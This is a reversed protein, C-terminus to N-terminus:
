KPTRRRPRSRGVIKRAPEDAIVLKGTLWPKMVLDWPTVVGSEVMLCGARREQLTVTAEHLSMGRGVEAPAISWLKGIPTSLPDKKPEYLISDIGMPSLVYDIISKDSIYCGEEGVFIRRYNRKFMTLLAERIPTDGPMSFIPSSVGEVVLDTKILGRDYLKLIDTLAVMTPRQYSGDGRVAASAIGRSRFSELVDRLDQDLAFSDLPESANRCPGQVFSAFRKQGMKVLRELASFGFVARMEPGDSTLPVAPLDQIQLLYMVTILPFDPKVVPFTRRLISPFATGLRLGL